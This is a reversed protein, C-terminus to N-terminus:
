IFLRTELDGQARCCNLLWVVLALNRAVFGKDKLKRLGFDHVSPVRVQVLDVWRVSLVLELTKMPYPLWTAAYVISEFASTETPTCCLPRLPPLRVLAFRNHSGVIDFERAVSFMQDAPWSYQAEVRVSHVTSAAACFSFRDISGSLRM